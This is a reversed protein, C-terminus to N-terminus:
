IRLAPNSLTSRLKWKKLVFVTSILKNIENSSWKPRKLSDTCAATQKGNRGLV